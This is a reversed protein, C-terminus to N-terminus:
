KSYHVNERLQNLKVQSKFGIATLDIAFYEIFYAYANSEYITDLAPRVEEEKKQVKEYEVLIKTPNNHVYYYDFNQFCDFNDVIMFVDNKM